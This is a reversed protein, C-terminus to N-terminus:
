NFYILLILINNNTLHPADMVKSPAVEAVLTESMGEHKLGTSAVPLLHLSVPPAKGEGM